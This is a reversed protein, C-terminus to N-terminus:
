PDKEAQEYIGYKLINGIKGKLEVITGKIDQHALSSMLAIVHSTEKAAKKCSQPDCKGM